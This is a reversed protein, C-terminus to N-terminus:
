NITTDMQYIVIIKVGLECTEGEWSIKQWTMEAQTVSLIM